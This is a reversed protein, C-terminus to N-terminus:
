TSFLNGRNIIRNTVVDNFRGLFLSSGMGVSENTPIIVKRVDFINGVDM